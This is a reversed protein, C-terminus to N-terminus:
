RILHLSSGNNGWKGYSIKRECSSPMRQVKITYSRLLKTENGGKGDGVKCISTNKGLFYLITLVKLVPVIVIDGIEQM